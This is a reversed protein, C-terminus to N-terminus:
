SFAAVAHHSKFSGGGSIVTEGSVVWAHARLDFKLKQGGRDLGLVLVGLQGRSRLMARSSFALMLCTFVSGMRREIADHAWNIDVLLCDASRDPRSLETPLTDIPVATGLWRKWVSYPLSKIMVWAFSTRILAEILIQRRSGLKVFRTVFRIM